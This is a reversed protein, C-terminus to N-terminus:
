KSKKNQEDLLKEIKDLREDIKITYFAIGFTLGLIFDTLDTLISLGQCVM